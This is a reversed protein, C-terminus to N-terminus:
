LGRYRRDGCPLPEAHYLQASDTDAPGAGPRKGRRKGQSPAVNEQREGSRQVAGASLIATLM